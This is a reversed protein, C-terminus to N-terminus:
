EGEEDGNKKGQGYYWDLWFLAAFCLVIGAALLLTSM